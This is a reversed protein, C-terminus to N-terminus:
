DWLEDKEVGALVDSGCDSPLVPKDLWPELIFYLLKDLRLADPRQPIKVDTNKPYAGFELRLDILKDSINIAIHDELFSITGLIRTKLSWDKIIWHMSMTM